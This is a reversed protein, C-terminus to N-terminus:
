SWSAVRSIDRLMVAAGVTAALMTLGLVWLYDEERGVAVWTSLVAPDQDNSNPAMIMKWRTTNTTTDTSQLFGGDLLQPALVHIRAFDRNVVPSPYRIHLLTDWEIVMVAASTSHMQQADLGVVPGQVHVLVVHWPSAFAPEEQDILETGNDATYIQFDISPHNSSFADETNIFVDPPLYLSIWVSFTCSNNSETHIRQCEPPVNGLQLVHHFDRHMGGTESLTSRLSSNVVAADVDDDDNINTNDQVISIAPRRENDFLWEGTGSTETSWVFRKWSHSPDDTNDNNPPSPPLFFGNATERTWRPYSFMYTAFQSPEDVQSSRSSTTPVAALHRACLSATWSPSADYDGDGTHPLKSATEVIWDCCAIRENGQDRLTSQITCQFIVFDERLSATLWTRKLHETVDTAEIVEDKTAEETSESSALIFHISLLSLFSMFKM